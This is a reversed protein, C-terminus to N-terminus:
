FDVFHDDILHNEVFHIRRFSWRRFSRWRFSWSGFILCDTSYIICSLPIFVPKSTNLADYHCVWLSVCADDRDYARSISSSEIIFQKERSLKGSGIHVKGFWGWIRLRQNFDIAIWSIAGNLSHSILCTRCIRCWLLWSSSCKGEVTTHLLYHPCLTWWCTTLECSSLM